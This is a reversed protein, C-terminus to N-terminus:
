LQARRERNLRDQRANQYRQQLERREAEEDTERYARHKKGNSSRKRAEVKLHEDVVSPSAFDLLCVPCISKKNTGHKSM